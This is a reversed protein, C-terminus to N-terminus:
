RALAIRRAITDDILCGQARVSSWPGPRRRWVDCAASTRASWAAQDAALVGRDAGTLPALRARYAAQMLADQRGREAVQCEIIGVTSREARLCAKFAPTLYPDDADSQARAAAGAGLALIAAMAAAFVRMTM